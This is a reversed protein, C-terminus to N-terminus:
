SKKQSNTAPIKVSHNSALTKDKCHLRVCIYCGQSLQSLPIHYGTMRFSYDLFAFPNSENYRCNKVM